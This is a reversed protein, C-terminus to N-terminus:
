NTGRESEQDALTGILRLLAQREPAGKPGDLFEHLEYDTQHGGAAPNAVHKIYLREAGVEHRLFWKDGNSSSYIERSNIQM